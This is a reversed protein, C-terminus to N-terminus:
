LKRGGAAGHKNIEPEESGRPYLVSRSVSYQAREDNMILQPAKLSGASPQTLGKFHLALLKEEKFPSDRHTLPHSTPFPRSRPAVFENLGLARRGLRQGREDTPNYIRQTLFNSRLRSLFHRLVNCKLQSTEAAAEQVCHARGKAKDTIALNLWFTVSLDM